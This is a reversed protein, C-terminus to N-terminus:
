SASGDSNTEEEKLRIWYEILRKKMQELYFLLDGLKAGDEALLRVPFDSDDLRDVPSILMVPGNEDLGEVKVELLRRVPKSACEKLLYEKTRKPLDKGIEDLRFRGEEGGYM